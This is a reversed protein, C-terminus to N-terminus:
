SVRLKGKAPRLRNHSLPAERLMYITHVARPLQGHTGFRAAPDQGAPKRISRLHLDAAQPM